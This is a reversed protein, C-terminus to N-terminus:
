LSNILVQLWRSLRITHPGMFVGLKQGTTNDWLQLQSIQAGSEVAVATVHM